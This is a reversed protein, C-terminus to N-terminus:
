EAASEMVVLCEFKGLSWLSDADTSVCVAGCEASGCPGCGFKSGVVECVMKPDFCWVTPLFM